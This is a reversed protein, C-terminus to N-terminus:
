PLGKVSEQQTSSVLPLSCLITVGTRELVTALALKDEEEERDEGLSDTCSGLKRFLKTVDQAV